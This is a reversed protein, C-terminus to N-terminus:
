RLETIRGEVTPAIKEQERLYEIVVDRLWRGSDNYVLKDGKLTGGVVAFDKSAKIADGFATFGDGGAALFDNTAVAYERDPDLPQGGIHVERVRSGAPANPDYAFTVGSVQPFAGAGNEVQAVGHDLAQWIQRGTLRIAVIYNDFPLATYIDKVLLPGKAISARIGGGNIVAADAGSVLRMIDAVLDGLNTERKRVNEGDLAVEAEGVRGALVTDVQRRYKEVQSQVTPDPEGRDPRIEELRGDVATIIGNDVTIDIVGLAKGHEWAQAIVTAGIRSPQELRTHSHGGIIIDIGQVQEALQRDVSYGIHSLVIVVDAQKRLEPVYRALVEAPPRFQLGVVNRPHTFVPADETVVGVIAIRVGGVEKIVYPRLSDIGEVNAGLVPFQAEAVRKKLVEQGFDFEHNGVTMADFGMLNMLEIVSEGRSLNAWNNGQIMDGAALLLTPKEARLTAVKAALWSVGGLPDTSGHPTYSEAFGHFDNVHLIRVTVADAISISVSFLLIFITWTAIRFSKM